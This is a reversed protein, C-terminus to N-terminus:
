GRAPVWASGEAHHYFGNTFPLDPALDELRELSEDAALTGDLRDRFVQAVAVMDVKQPSLRLRRVGRRQLDDVDGLLNACAHSLTQMGNVAVFSEGEMTEVAMGDADADCAYQCTNKTLGRSRAHYCRASVALPLRGFALVERDIAVSGLQEISDASLEPPLCIRRAGNSALWALTGENYVNIMPGIAHPRGRLHGLASVDNAEILADAGCLAEVLELDRPGIVLALTAFVVEKGAAKLRSAVAPLHVGYLPARKSCVVEGLVVTDVAAEDAIRLYFDRWTEPAWNFLVPGLTLATREPLAANM